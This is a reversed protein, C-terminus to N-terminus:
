FVNYYEDYVITTNYNAWATLFNGSGKAYEYTKELGTKSEKILIWDEVDNTLGYYRPFSGTDISRSAKFGILPDDEIGTIVVTGDDLTKLYRLTNSTQDVSGIKLNAININGSDLVLETDVCLAFTGDPNEKACIPEWRTSKGPTIIQGYVQGM